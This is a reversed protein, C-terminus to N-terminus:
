SGTGGQKFLISGHVTIFGICLKIIKGYNPGHEDDHDPTAVFVCFHCNRILTTELRRTVIHEKLTLSYSLLAQTYENESPFGQM